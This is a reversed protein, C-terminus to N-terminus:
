EDVREVAKGATEEGGDCDGCVDGADGAGREEVETEKEGGGGKGGVTGSWALV